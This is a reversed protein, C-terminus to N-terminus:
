SILAGDAQIHGDKLLIVRRACRHVLKYDHTILLIATGQRNMQELYAMLLELHGWDQGLTPEDLVLLRPRMALCAALATRQQQGTSLMQPPRYRLPLLDMATLLARHWVPEYVRYNRPGFAVEDDVTDNFLQTAPNQFLLTADRGPRPRRRGGFIVAGRRQRLLGVAVRALTSKGAGNDGVLAAFDGAYLRMSVDEIALTRGYGAAVGRMELLPEKNCKTEAAPRVLVGWPQSPHQPLRRLGLSKLHLRSGLIEQPPGDAVVRGADMLLVRDILGAVEALRHEILLITLGYEDRLHRLARVLNQTNPVDLSATPEDLILVQPRMALASAIALLQKQGGSLSSPKQNQRSTLGTAELAWNVSQRIAPEHWGLNHPGFAVEDEVRLHFLQTSPDQFVMGVRQAIEPLTSSCIDLGAVVVSGTFSAPISHPIIGAAVRALTSKGCGSPGTLLVCEGPQIRLSVGSVALNGSYSVSLDEIQIM